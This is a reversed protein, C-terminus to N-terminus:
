INCPGAPGARLALGYGLAGLLAPCDWVCGSINALVAYTAFFLFIHRVSSRTRGAALMNVFAWGLLALLAATGAVGTESLLELIANHPYSGYKATYGGPGIGWVPARSIERLALAYYTGRSAVKLSDLDEKIASDAAAGDASPLSFQMTLADKTEGARERVRDLGLPACVFLLFLLVAALLVALLAARKAGGERHLWKSLTLLVCFVMACVYAARAGSALIALWYIAILAGRLAQPHKIARGAPLPSPDQQTSGILHAMLFPLFGYGLNQYRFIGLYKEGWPLCDFLVGNFYIVAIPFVFFSARELAPYFRDEWRWRAACVGMLFAPVSFALFKEAYGLFAGRMGNRYLMLSFCVAFFLATLGLRIWIGASLRERRLMYLFVLGCCVAGLLCVAIFGYKRVPNDEFGFGLYFFALNVLFPFVFCFPFLWPLKDAQIGRCHDM